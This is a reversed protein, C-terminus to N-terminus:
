KTCLSLRNVSRRALDEARVALEAFRDRQNRLRSADADSRHLAELQRLREAALNRENDHARLLTQIKKAADKNVKNVNEQEQITAQATNLEGQLRRIEENDSGMSYGLSFAAVLAAILIPIKLKNLIATM